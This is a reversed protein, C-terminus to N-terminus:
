ERDTGKPPRDLFVAVIPSDLATGLVPPLGVPLVGAISVLASGDLTLISGAASLTELASTAAVGSLVLVPGVAELNETRGTEASGDFTLISGSAFLALSRRVDVSGSLTLIDGSAELTIVTGSLLDASGSLNLIEGSSGLAEFTSTEASGSLILLGGLAELGELTSIEASGSFGLISGSAELAGSSASSLDASGTLALITGLAELSINERLGASGSLALFTGSTGLSVSEGLNSSGTLALLTGSAELGIQSSLDSSGTLALLTGSAELEVTTGGSSAMTPHASVIATAGTGVDTLTGTPTDLDYDSELPAYALLTASTTLDGPRTAGTSESLDSIESSTPASGSDWLGLEAFQGDPAYGFDPDGAIYLDAGTIASITWSSPGADWPSSELTGDVWIATDTSASGTFPLYFLFHHWAGTLSGFTVDRFWDLYSAGDYTIRILTDGTTFPTTIRFVFWDFTNANIAVFAGSAPLADLNVWLSITLGSSASIVSPETVGNSSTVDLAM